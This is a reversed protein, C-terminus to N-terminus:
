ERVGGIEAEGSHGATGLNEPDEESETAGQDIPFSAMAQGRASFISKTGRLPRVFKLRVVSQHGIASKPSPWPTQRRDLSRFAISEGVRSAHATDGLNAPALRGRM